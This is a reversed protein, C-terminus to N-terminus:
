EAVRYLFYRGPAVGEPLPLPALRGPVVLPQDCIIVGDPVVAEVLRPGLAAALAATAVKDGSGFDGHAMAAQRGIQRVLRPLTELVDGLILFDEPPICDPHAALQRDFAFIARDPARSRLHDYTRGNGLGVELLPGPRGAILAIAHDLCARQAELRRIFSDLRSM